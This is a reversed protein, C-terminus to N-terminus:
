VQDTQKDRGGGGQWFLVLNQCPQWGAFPGFLSNQTDLIHILLIFAVAPSPDLWQGNM